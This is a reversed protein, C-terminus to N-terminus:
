HSLSTVYLISACGTLRNISQRLFYRRVMYFNMNPERAKLHMHKCIGAIGVIM